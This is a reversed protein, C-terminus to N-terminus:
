RTPRLDVLLIRRTCIMCRKLSRLSTTFSSIYCPDSSTKARNPPHTESTSTITYSPFRTSKTTKESTSSLQQVVSLKAHAKSLVLTLDYGECSYVKGMALQSNYKWHTGLMIKLMIPFTRIGKIWLMGGPTEKWRTFMESHIFWQGTGEHHEEVLRNHTTSPDPLDKHLWNLMKQMEPYVISPMLQSTYHGLQEYRRQICWSRNYYHYRWWSRCHSTLVSTLAFTFISVFASHEAEM